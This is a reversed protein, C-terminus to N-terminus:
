ILYNTYPVLTKPFQLSAQLQHQHLALRDKNALDHLKGMVFM